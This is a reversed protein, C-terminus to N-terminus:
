HLMDPPATDLLCKISCKRDCILVTFIMLLHFMNLNLINVTLRVTLAPTDGGTRDQGYVNKSIQQGEKALKKCIKAPFKSRVLM